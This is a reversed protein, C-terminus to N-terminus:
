TIVKWSENLEELLAIVELIRKSDKQINAEALHKQMFNYLARLNQAIQGGHDMDLVTNLEVLIDLAKAIHKNKQEYDNKELDEIAQRLFRIAGEYLMVILRGRNQTSVATQQYINFGNM